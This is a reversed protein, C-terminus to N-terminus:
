YSPCTRCRHHFDVSPTTASSGWLSGALRPYSGPSFFCYRFRPEVFLFRIRLRTGPPCASRLCRLEWLCGYGQFRLDPSYVIFSTLSIGHPRPSEGSFDASAMTATGRSPCPSLASYNTVDFELFTHKPPYPQRAAGDLVYILADASLYVM